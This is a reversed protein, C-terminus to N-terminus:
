SSEDTREVVTEANTSTRELRKWMRESQGPRCRSGTRQKGRRRKKTQAAKNPVSNPEDDPEFVTKEILCRQLMLHDEAEAAAADGKEAIFAENNACDDWFQHAGPQSGAVPDTQPPLPNYNVAIAEVADKGQNVSEAIVVAIIHGVHLVRDSTLAPRPPRFGPSGGRRKPPPNGAVHGIGDAQWEAGTLVAIVGPMIAAAKTDIGLIEAHAHPSRLFVAKCERPLSVDDTYRGKGMLLRPAEVQTVPQSISYRTM